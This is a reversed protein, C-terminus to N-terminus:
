LLLIPNWLPYDGARFKAQGDKYRRDTRFIRETRRRAMRILPIVPVRTIKGPVMYSPVKDKLEKRVVPPVEKGTYFAAIRRKERDFICCCRSVGEMQELCGEIEELEIRHGMYKIQFDKTRCFIIIWERRLIGPRGHSLM